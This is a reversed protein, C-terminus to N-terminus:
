AGAVALSPGRTRLPLQRLDIADPIAALPVPRQFLFGQGLPMGLTQVVDLEARTEIGDAIVTAGTEAAFSVLAGALARRAPDSDIGAVVSRDLKVVRHPPVAAM